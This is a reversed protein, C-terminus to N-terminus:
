QKRIQEKLTVDVEIDNDTENDSVQTSNHNTKQNMYTQKINRYLCTNVTNVTLDEAVVQIKTPGIGVSEETGKVATDTVADEKSQINQATMRFMTGLVNPEKQASAETRTSAYHNEKATKKLKTQKKKRNTKM